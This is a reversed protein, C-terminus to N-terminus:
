VHRAMRKTQKNEKAERPAHGTTVIILLSIIPCVWIVSYNVWNTSPDNERKIVFLNKGM